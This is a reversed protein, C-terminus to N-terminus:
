DLETLVDDVMDTTTAPHLFVLRGVVEGRWSSSTVFARQDNLLRHSWAAYDDHGWGIRRFLVVSLDPDRILECHARARLQAAAYRAMELSHEVADRYAGIGHVAMSFWLPLGRARRTLHYALDSPNIDDHEHIVDLYSADQTHVSKALRPERYILAASDFPAFWWKHPDMVLSDALEIGAYRARISPSLMGAGGYAGDVHLWWGQEEAVSAAGAIDDIIGANTTGATAVIACVDSLDGSEAVAARIAEETLRGDPTAVVFASMGTINLANTISSHTQDSVAVRLATDPLGADARRRRFTDRAVVLASLNGASGGSVFVGGASAPLGAIDALARLAQNEAMVAGAAEFWSIGQLSAASVVMDFLLSAKTPASPIFTFMRPSDASLVTLALHQVYVDLVRRFDHGEETILGALVAALQDRDALGDLPVEPTLLRDAVYSLIVQTMEEDPRHMRDADIPLAPIFPLSESTVAAISALPGHLWWLHTPVIAGHGLDSGGGDRLVTLLALVGEERRSRREQRTLARERHGLHGLFHAQGARRDILVVGTDRLEDGVDQHGSEVIPGRGQSSGRIRVRGPSFPQVRPDGSAQHSRSVAPVCQKLPGACQLKRLVPPCLHEHSVFGQDGRDDGTKGIGVGNVWRSLRAVDPGDHLRGHRADLPVLCSEFILGGGNEGEDIGRKRVRRLDLPPM